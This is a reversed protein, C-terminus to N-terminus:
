KNKILDISYFFNSIKDCVISRKTAYRTGLSQNPSNLACIEQFQYTPPRKISASTSWSQDLGTVQLQKGASLFIEFIFCKHRKNPATFVWLNPATVFHRAEVLLTVFCVREFIVSMWLLTNSLCPIIMGSGRVACWLGKEDFFDTKTAVKQPLRLGSRSRCVWCRNVIVESAKLGWVM